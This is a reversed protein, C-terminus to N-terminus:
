YGEYILPKGDRDLLPFMGGYTSYHCYTVGTEEDVFIVYTMSKEIIQLRNAKRPTSCGVLLLLIALVAILKRM